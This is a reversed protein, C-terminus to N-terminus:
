TPMLQLDTSSTAKELAIKSNRHQYSKETQLACLMVDTLQEAPM